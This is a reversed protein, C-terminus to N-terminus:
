PRYRPHNKSLPSIYGPPKARFKVAGKGPLSRGKLKSGKERLRKQQGSEGRVRRWHGIVAQDGVTKRKACEPNLLARNGILDCVDAPLTERPTMHEDICKPKLPEGCGCGCKVANGSQRQAIEIVQARTLPKAPKHAPYERRRGTKPILLDDTMADGM